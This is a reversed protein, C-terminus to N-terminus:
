PCSVGVCVVVTKKKNGKTGSYIVAGIVGGAAAGLLFPGVYNPFGGAVYGGDDSVPDAAPTVFAGDVVANKEGAVCPAVKTVTFVSPKALSVACEAYSITATSDKGVLLRDGAGLQLAGTAPVFGKGKNVLVKGSVNQVVAVSQAAMAVSASLVLCALATSLVRKM